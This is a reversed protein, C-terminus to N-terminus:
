PSFLLHRHHNTIRGGEAPRRLPPVGYWNLEVPDVLRRPPDTSVIYPYTPGEYEEEEACGALAFLLALLLLIPKM